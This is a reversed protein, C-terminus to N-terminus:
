VEHWGSETVYGITRKEGGYSGSTITVLFEDKGTEDDVYGSVEVGVNWGRIHCYIGSDKSGLRSAEGRNGQIDAKFHAM